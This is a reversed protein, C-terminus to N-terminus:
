IRKGWVVDPCLLVAVISFLYVENWANNNGALFVAWMYLLAFFGSFLTFGNLMLLSTTEGFRERNRRLRCFTFYPGEEVDFRSVIFFRAVAYALVFLGYELRFNDGALIALYMAIIALAYDLIKAPMPMTTYHCLIMSSGQPEFLFVRTNIVCSFLQNIQYIKPHRDPVSQGTRIFNQSQNEQRSHGIPQRQRGRTGAACAYGPTSLLL